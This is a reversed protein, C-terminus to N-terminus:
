HQTGPCAIARLESEHERVARVARQRAANRQSWHATVKAAREGAWRQLLRDAARCRDGDAAVEASPAVVANVVAPIADGGLSALYLPDPGTVSADSGATRALNARAVWADPALVNLGLLIAFATAVVGAAFRLPRERLVTLALWASTTALWVMVASAMLRDVSLGYYHVYLRMRAFASTIIVALLLVLVASLARYLRRARADDPPVLSRTVLLLPILLVVVGTLEAFGGRAYSAYTLGTTRMALAEGGYLWGVQTLVFGAFLVALGGLLLVLDTVGLTLPRPLEPPAGGPIDAVVARRLWGAVVWAFFGSIVMHSVLEGLPWRPLRLFSAFVPDASAFLAAFVVLVPTALLVARGLRWGRVHQTARAARVDAEVLALPIIGIAFPLATAAAGHLLDQVRATGLGAAPYRVLHISLLTLSALMAFVNFVHLLASDRWALLAAFLVATTLWLRGEGGLRRNTPRLTVLLAAAFLIIWAGLGLGWPENRLLLNALVGLALAAVLARRAAVVRASPPPAEVQTPDSM